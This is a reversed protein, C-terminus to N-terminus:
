LDKKGRPNRWDAGKLMINAVTKKKKQGDGGGKGLISIKPAAVEKPRKRRREDGWEIQQDIKVWKRKGERKGQKKKKRM